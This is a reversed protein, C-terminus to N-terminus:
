TVPCTSATSPPKWMYFGPRATESLIDASDADRLSIAELLVQHLRNGIAHLLDDHVLEPDLLVEHRGSAENTSSRPASLRSVTSSTM